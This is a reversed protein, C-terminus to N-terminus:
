RTAINVWDVPGAPRGSFLSGARESEAGAGRCGLRGHPIRAVLGWRPGCGAPTKKAQRASSSAPSRRWIPFNVIVSKLSKAKKTLQHEEALVAALHKLTVPRRTKSATTPTKAKASPAM